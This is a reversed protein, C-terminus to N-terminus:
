QQAIIANAEEKSLYDMNVMANVVTRQRKKALDPNNKLSYVSPANPIGALLTAEYDTLESPMKNFYGKSADYVNYYGSGYYIVNFYLELIEDKTLKKELEVTVFVEAIKRTITNDNIFYINKALQQTIGSGGESFSKEKMNKGIARIVGIFDIGSHQFFRKDEVAVMANIFTESIKDSTTYHESNKINVVAVDIPIASTVKKYKLWGAVTFLGISIFVLLLIFTIIKRIFRMM